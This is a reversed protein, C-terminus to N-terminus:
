LDRLPRGSAGTRAALAEALVSLAVDHPAKGGLDLGAPMHLRSLDTVGRGALWEVRLRRVPASGLAAVYGAEGSLAAILTAGTTEYDHGVVIAADGPGLTAAREAASTPDAVLEVHWGLWRALGDIATAYAGQGALVLRPAPTSPTAHDALAAEIQAAVEDPSHRATDVMLDATATLWSRADTYVGVHDLRWQEASREQEDSTIRKRLTDPDADLVVHFVDIGQAELGTRLEHWYDESLVSQVAVLDQGAADRVHRAVRPVLERWAPLDQFDDIPVGTLNSTLMYGVWEPDFLRLGLVREVLHRATTTKGVGFAGNIWVLM